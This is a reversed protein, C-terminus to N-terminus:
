FDVFDTWYILIRMFAPVTMKTKTDKTGPLYYMSLSNLSSSQFVILNKLDLYAVSVAKKIYSSKLFKNKM